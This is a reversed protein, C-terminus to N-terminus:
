LHNTTGCLTGGGRPELCEDECQWDKVEVYYNKGIVNDPDEFSILAKFVLGTPTEEYEQVIIQSDVAPSADADIPEVTVLVDDVNTSGPGDVPITVGFQQVDEIFNLTPTGFVTPTEITSELGTIRFEAYDLEDGNNDSLTVAAIYEMDVVNGADIFEIQSAKFVRKNPLENVLELDFEEPDADSGGDDPTLHVSVNAVGSALTGTTVMKFTFTEQDENRKLSPTKINLLDNGDITVVQEIQEGVPNGSEDLYNLVVTYEYGIAEEPNEFNISQSRYSNTTLNSSVLTAEVELELPAPGEFPEEFILNVSHVQDKDTGKVKTRVKFGNGNNNRKITSPQAVIGEEQDVDEATVFVTEPEGVNEGLADKQTITLQMSQGIPDEGELHLQNFVFRKNGNANTNKLALTMTSPIAEIGNQPPIAVEVTAVENEPDDEVVVVTKYLGNPRQKLRTRGAKINARNQTVTSVTLNAEQQMEIVEQECSFFFCTMAIFLVHIPKMLTLKHHNYM